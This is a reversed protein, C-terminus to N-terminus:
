ARTSAGVRDGVLDFIVGNGHSRVWAAYRRSSVVWPVPACDGQPIGGGALLEAPCDPGTYRRDAGLQVLRGSQDSQTGPRAGLGVWHEGSGRRWDFAVRLPGGGPELEFSVRDDDTMAGELRARRGGALELSLTVADPSLDQVLALRAREPPSLDERAVVG